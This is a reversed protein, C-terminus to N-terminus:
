IFQFIYNQKTFMVIADPDNLSQFVFTIDDEVVEFTNGIRFKRSVSNGVNKMIINVLSGYEGEFKTGKLDKVVNIVVGIPTNFENYVLEHGDSLNAFSHDTLCDIHFKQLIYKDIDRPISYEECIRTLLKSM